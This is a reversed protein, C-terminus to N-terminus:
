AEDRPGEVVPRPPPTEDDVPGHWEVFLVTADDQLTGDHHALVARILRRLTEPVPFGDANHRIIFEVFRHLGFERGQQDRAETIGDTHLLVRDGPQLQETCLTVPRGMDLGMP